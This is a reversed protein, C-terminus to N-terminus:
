GSTREDTVITLSPTSRDGASYDMIRVARAYRQRYYGENLSSITVRGQGSSAHIFQGEGIYIGVHNIHSSGCTMFFVLDGTSLEDRSIPTGLQSQALANHPLIYGVQRFIYM